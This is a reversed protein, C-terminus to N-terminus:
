RNQEPITPFSPDVITLNYRSIDKRWREVIYKDEVSFIKEQKLVQISHSCLIGMTEFKRCICSVERLARRYIVVFIKDWCDSVEYVAEEDQENILKCSLNVCKRFQQQCKYFIDNTYSKRFQAEMPLEYHLMPIRFKSKHDADNENQWITKLAAEFNEVFDKLSERKTLYANLFHNMSEVRQTSTMGAWFQGNLFAPVWKERLAFIGRFWSDNQKGLEDMLKLWKEEFEEKTKSKYVVDKVKDSKEGKKEQVKDSKEGKKEQLININSNEQENVDGKDSVFGWKSPLKHLIHWSCYRHVTEPGLVHQIGSEISACQDSLIGGPKVGGM